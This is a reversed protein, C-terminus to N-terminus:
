TFGITIKEIRINRISLGAYFARKISIVVRSGSKTRVSEGLYMLIGDKVFM